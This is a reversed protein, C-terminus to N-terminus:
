VPCQLQDAHNRQRLYVLVAVFLAARESASRGARVHGSGVAVPIRGPRRASCLRTGGTKSNILYQETIRNRYCRDHSMPGQMKQQLTRVIEGTKPDHGNLLGTWVLGQALFFDSSKMYNLSNKATWALRGDRLPFARVENHTSCFLMDDSLVLTPQVNNSAKQDTPILDDHESRGVPRAPAPTPM